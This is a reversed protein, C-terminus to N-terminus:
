IDLFEVISVGELELVAKYNSAIHEYQEDEEIYNKIQKIPELYKDLASSKGESCFSYFYGGKKILNKKNCELYYEKADVIGQKLIHNIVDKSLFSSKDSVNAGTGSLLTNGNSLLINHAMVGSISIDVGSIEKKVSCQNMINSVALNTIPLYYLKNKESSKSNCDLLVVTALLCKSWFAKSCAVEIEKLYRPNDLRINGLTSESPNGKLISKLDSVTMRRAIPNDPSIYCRSVKYTPGILRVTYKGSKTIHLETTENMSSEWIDDGVWIDKDVSSFLEKLNSVKM